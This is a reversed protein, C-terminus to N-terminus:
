ILESNLWKDLAIEWQQYTAQNNNYKIWIQDFEEHLRKRMHRIHRDISRNKFKENTIEESRNLYIKRLDKKLTNM